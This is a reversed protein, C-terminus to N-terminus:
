REIRIQNPQSVWVEMCPNKGSGHAPPIDRLTHWDYGIM